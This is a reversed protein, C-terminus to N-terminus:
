EAMTRASSIMAFWSIAAPVPFHRVFDAQAARLMTPPNPRAAVLSCASRASSAVDRFSLGTLEANM